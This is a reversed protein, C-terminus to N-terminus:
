RSYVDGGETDFAVMVPFDRVEMRYIAEPGLDDFAVIKGSKVKMGLLAAAGGTAVLYLAKNKVLANKVNLSRDGKGIFIKVGLELMMPTFPDMRSSTTPGCAGVPACPSEGSPGCYFLVTNDFDVPLKQESEILEAIRKHAADRATYITGTLLISDGARLEARKVILQETTLEKAM